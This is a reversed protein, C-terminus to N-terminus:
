RTNGGWQDRRDDPERRADELEGQLEALRERAGELIVSPMLLFVKIGAIEGKLGEHEIMRDYSGAPQCVAERRQRVNNQALFQISQWGPNNVLGEIDKIIRLQEDIEERVREEEVQV